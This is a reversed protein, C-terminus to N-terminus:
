YLDTRDSLDTEGIYYGREKNKLYVQGRLSLVKSIPFKRLLTECAHICDLTEEIVRNDGEEEDYAKAIEIAEEGIKRIQSSFSAHVGRCMPFKYFRMCETSDDRDGTSSLLIAGYREEDNNAQQYSKSLSKM